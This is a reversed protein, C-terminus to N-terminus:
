ASKIEGAKPSLFEFKDGPKLGLAEALEIALVKKGGEVRLKTALISGDKASILIGDDTISLISGPTGAEM